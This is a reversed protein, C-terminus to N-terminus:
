GGGGRTQIANITSRSGDLLPRVSQSILPCKIFPRGGPSYSHFTISLNSSVRRATLAQAGTTNLQSELHSTTPRCAVPSYLSPIYVYGPLNYRARSPNGVWTGGRRRRRPPSPPPTRPSMPASLIYRNSISLCQRRTRHTPGALGSEDNLSPRPKRRTFTRNEHSRRQYNTAVISACNPYRTFFSPSFSLSTGQKQFNGGGTILLNHYSHM